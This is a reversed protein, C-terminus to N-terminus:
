PNLARESQREEMVAWADAASYCDGLTVAIQEHGGAIPVALVANCTEAKGNLSHITGAIINGDGKRSIAGDGCHAPTGNKFHM